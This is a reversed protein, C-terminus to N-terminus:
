ALPLTRWAAPSVASSSSIHPNLTSPALPPRDGSRTSASTHATVSSINLSPGRTLPIYALRDEQGCSSVHRRYPILTAIYRPTGSSVRMHCRSLGEHGLPGLATAPQASRRSCLSPDLISCVLWACSTFKTERANLPPTPVGDSGACKKEFPGFGTSAGLLVCHMDGLVRDADPVVLIGFGRRPEIGLCEGVGFHGRHARSRAVIGRALRSLHQGDFEGNAANGADPEITPRPERM